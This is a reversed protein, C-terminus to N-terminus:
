INQIPRWLILIVLARVEVLGGYGAGDPDIQANEAVSSSPAERGEVKKVFVPSVVIRSRVTLSCQHARGDAAAPNCLGLTSGKIGYRVSAM